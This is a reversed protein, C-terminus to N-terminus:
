VEGLELIVPTHDSPKDWRRPELDITCNILQPLLLDSVYHHDIRWGLNRRFSAARYDWWTFQKPEGNFYRFADVFGLNLLANLHEREAHSAMIHSDKGLPDYIDRDEPAINFDGCIQVRDNEQLLVQLYEQFQTLWGLKYEYKDSGLSSGNPVYVNVITIGQYQGSIVRKQQDWIQVANNISPSNGLVPYFGKKVQHLEERSLIAVGNYSKQGFQYYYYGLDKLRDGPFEEDIVKTEQLCVVEIPNQRLWQILHDLRTRISNVNWTAIRM